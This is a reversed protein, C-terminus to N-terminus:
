GHQEQRRLGVLVLLVFAGFLLAAGGWAISEEVAVGHPLRDIHVVLTEGAVPPRDLTLQRQLFEGQDREVLTFGGGPLLTPAIRKSWRGIMRLDTLKIPTQLAVDLREGDIPMAYRAQLSQGKGPFIPGRYRVQGRDVLLRGREPSAQLAMNATARDPLYGAVAGGGVAPLLLPLALGAGDADADVVTRGTNDLAYTLDFIVKGEDVFVGVFVSAELAELSRTAEYVRVEIPEAARGASSAPGTFTIGKYVVSPILEGGAPSAGVFRAEGSADTTATWAQLLEREGMPGGWAALVVEAAVLPGAAGAPSVHV